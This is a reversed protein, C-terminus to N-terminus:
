INPFSRDDMYYQTININHFPFRFYVHVYVFSEEIEEQYWVM